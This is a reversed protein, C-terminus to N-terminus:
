NVAFCFYSTEWIKRILCLMNNYLHGDTYVMPFVMNFLAMQDMEIEQMTKNSTHHKGAWIETTALWIRTNAM